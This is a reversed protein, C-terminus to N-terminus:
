CSGHPGDVRRSPASTPKPWPAPQIQGVRGDNFPRELESEPEDGVGTLQRLALSRREEDPLKLAEELLREAKGRMVSLRASM